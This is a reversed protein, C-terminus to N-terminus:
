FDPLVYSGISLKFGPVISSFWTVCYYQLLALGFLMLYATRTSIGDLKLGTDRNKEGHIFKINLSLTSETKGVVAANLNTKKSKLSMWGARLTDVAITVWITIEQASLRRSLLMVLHSTVHHALCTGPLLTFLRSLFLRCHVHWLHTCLLSHRLQVRPSPLHHSATVTTAECPTLM